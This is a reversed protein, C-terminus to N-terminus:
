YRPEDYSYWEGSDARYANFQEACVEEPVGDFQGTMSIKREKALICNKIDEQLRAKRTEYDPNRQAQWPGTYYWWGAGIIVALTIIRSLM